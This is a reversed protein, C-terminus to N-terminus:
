ALASVLALWFDRRAEVNWPYKLLLSLFPVHNSDFVDMVDGTKSFRM